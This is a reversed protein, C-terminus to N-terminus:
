PVQRRRLYAELTALSFKIRRDADRYGGVREWNGRRELWARTMGLLESAEGLTLARDPQPAPRRTVIRARLAAELATVEAYLRDVEDASLDTLAPVSLLPSM